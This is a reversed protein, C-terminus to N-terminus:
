FQSNVSQLLNSMIFKSLVNQYLIICIRSCFGKGGKPDPQTPAM